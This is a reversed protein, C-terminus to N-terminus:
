GSNLSINMESSRKIEGPEVSILLALKLILCLPPFPDKTLVIHSTLSSEQPDTDKAWELYKVCTLDQASYSIGITDNFPIPPLVNGMVRAPISLWM